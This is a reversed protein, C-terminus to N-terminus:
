HVQTCASDRTTNLYQRKEGELKELRRELHLNAELADEALEILLRYRSYGREELETVNV